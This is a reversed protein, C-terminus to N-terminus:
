ALKAQYALYISLFVVIGGIFFIIGIVLTIKRRSKWNLLLIDQGHPDWFNPLRKSDYSLFKAPFFMLYTGIILLAFGIIWM